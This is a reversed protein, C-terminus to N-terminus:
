KNKKKIKRKIKRKIVTKLQHYLFKAVIFLSFIKKRLSIKDIKVIIMFLSIANSIRWFSNNKIQISYTDNPHRDTAMSKHLTRYYGIFPTYAFTGIFSLIIVLHRDWMAFSPIYPEVYQLASTKFLGYMAFNLKQSKGGSPSVCLIPLHISSCLKKEMKKSLYRSSIFNQNKDFYSLGSFALINNSNILIQVLKSIYEPHWRDDSAAWMFFDSKAKRALFKFNEVAGINKTQSYIKINYKKAIEECIMLTKDTSCNDSIIITFNPYTQNLLSELTLRIFSEGNYVPLGITVLPHKNKM